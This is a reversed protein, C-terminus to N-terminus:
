GMCGARERAARARASVEAPQSATHLMICVIYLAHAIYLMICLAHVAAASRLNYLWGALGALLQCLRQLVDYSLDGPWVGLLATVIGLYSQAVRRCWWM